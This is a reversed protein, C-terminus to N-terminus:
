LAVSASLLLELSSLAVVCRIINHADVISEQDVDTDSILSWDFAIGELSSFVNGALSSCMRIVVACWTVLSPPAGQIKM